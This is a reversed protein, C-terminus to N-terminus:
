VHDLEGALAASVFGIRLRLDRADVAGIRAGLVEVTGRSPWLYTAAVRLVTTKGSGNPGVIAWRQGTEITWDVGDLIWRGERRIGVDTLRLVATPPATPPDTVRDSRGPSSSTPLGSARGASGSSRAPSSASGRSRRARCSASSRTSSTSGADPSAGLVERDALRAIAGIWRADVREVTRGAIDGPGDLERRADLFDSPEGGGTM